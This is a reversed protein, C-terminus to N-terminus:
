QHVEEEGNARFLELLRERMILGPRDSKMHFEVRRRPDICVDYETSELIGRDEETIKRDWAVVEAAPVEEEKDSRYCWQVLTMTSDDNPTANTVIYHKLGNPYTIGLRRTFPMFWLTESKRVTTEGTVRLAKEANGRNIVPTEHRSIFGWPTLTLEREVPKPADINGFTARHVFAPHASDFSNEMLRFASCKWVEHFQHIRRFAPDGDEKLEPIPLLPEDLAVWVYGYRAECRYAKVRAGSPVKIGEEHQPIKVCAGTRDYEWGHYGCVVNGKSCFGLSLKATRHCCRDQLAAPRGDADRWLVINEGLLKFPKPGEGLEELPMVCYWFRRLTKQQTVLM